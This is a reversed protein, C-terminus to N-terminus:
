QSATRDIDIRCCAFCHGFFSQRLQYGFAHGQYALAPILFLSNLLLLWFLMM